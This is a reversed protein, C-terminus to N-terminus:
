GVPVPLEGAGGFAYTGGGSVRWSGTALAGAPGSPKAVPPHWVALEAKGDGDYQAPVPLDGSGGFHV